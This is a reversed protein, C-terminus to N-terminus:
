VTQHYYTAMRDRVVQVASRCILWGSCWRLDVLVMEIIMAMMLLHRMTHSTQQQRTNMITAPSCRYRAEEGGEERGEGEAGEEEEEGRDVTMSPYLNAIPTRSAWSFPMCQMNRTLIMLKLADTGEKERQTRM